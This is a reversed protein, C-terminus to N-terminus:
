IYETKKQDNSQRTNEFLTKYGSNKRENIQRLIYKYQMIPVVALKTCPIHHVDDVLAYAQHSKLFLARWVMSDHLNRTEAM